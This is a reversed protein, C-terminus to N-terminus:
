HGKQAAVIVARFFRSSVPKSITRPMFGWLKEAFLELSTALPAKLLKGGRYIYSKQFGAAHVQSRLSAVTWEQFHFCVLEDGFHRSVDHPGAFRHPTWILYFGGPKLLRLALELHPIVDDPHLHEMFMCSFVVDAISDPLPCSYGDYIIHQFNEPSDSPDHRQDSIDIGIVKQCKGAACHALRCDGPAFEILTSDSNLIPNLLKLQANLHQDLEDPTERRVLRPHDPVREFLEDYLTKFLETRENRDSNRLRTALEREVEFHHRIREPTRIETLDSSM